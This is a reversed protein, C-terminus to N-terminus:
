RSRFYNRQNVCRLTMIASAIKFKGLSFFNKWVQYIHRIYVQNQGFFYTISRGTSYHCAERFTSFWIEVKSFVLNRPICNVILTYLIYQLIILLIYNIVFFLKVKFKCFIIIIRFFRPSSLTKLYAKQLPSAIQLIM